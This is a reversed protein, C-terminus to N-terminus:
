NSKGLNAEQPVEALRGRARSFGAKQGGMTETKSSKRRRVELTLLEVREGERANV